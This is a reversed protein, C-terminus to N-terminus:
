LMKVLFLVNGILKVGSIRTNISAGNHVAYGTNYGIIGGQITVNKTRVLRFGDGFNKLSKFGTIDTGVYNNIFKNDTGEYVLVGYFDNGSIINRQGVGTGGILNNKSGNSVDIGRWWNGIDKTGSKDTGVLNGQVINNSGSALWLVIGSYHNGSVVNDNITNYNTSTEIGYHENALRANGAANLGVINNLVKNYGGGSINMVLGDEGNGSLVNGTVTNRPSGNLAIGSTGNKIAFNGTVDTGIYNNQVWNEATYYTWFQLGLNGNGSIINRDAANPGGITNKGFSVVIGKGGNGRDITGTVDTGIYNGKITDGGAKVVLIGSGKFRNIVMGKVTSSGGGLVLGDGWTKDGRLEIIPKGAYGPQSTGDITVPYMIYPMPKSPAISKVGSGIKFQILDADSKKNAKILADRLTGTGADATSTVIFTSFLQRSEVSELVAAQASTRNAAASSNIKRM